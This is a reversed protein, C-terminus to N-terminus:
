FGYEIWVVVNVGTDATMYYSEGPKISGCIQFIEKFFTCQVEGLLVQPSTAYLQVITASDPWATINLFLPGSGSNTYVVNQTYAQSTRVGPPFYHVHDGRSVNSAVGATSTSLSVDEATLSPVLYHVHDGRAVDVTIGATWDVMSVNSINTAPVLYHVHDGRSAAAEVGGTSTSLSVNSAGAGYIAAGPDVFHVHDARPFYDTIGATSTTPSVNQIMSVPAILYPHQHDGKAGLAQVGGTGFSTAAQTAVGTSFDAGVEGIRLRLEEILGTQTPSGLIIRRRTM